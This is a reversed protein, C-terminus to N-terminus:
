SGEPIPRMETLAIVTGDEQYILEIRETDPVSDGEVQIEVLDGHMPDDKVFHVDTITVDAPLDLLHELAERNILAYTM